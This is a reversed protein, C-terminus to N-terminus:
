VKARRRMRTACLGALASALYGFTAPEPVTSGNSTITTSFDVTCNACATLGNTTADIWDASGSIGSRTGWPAIGNLGKSIVTGTPTVWPQQTSPNKNSDNYSALWHTTDTLLHQTGNAFQFGADSLTFDGIIAGPGGYNIAEIQLYYTQGATLAFNSFNFTTGWANGSAVLTGRVSNSTSLYAFFANDATLNGSISTAKACRVFSGGALGAVLFITPLRLFGAKM